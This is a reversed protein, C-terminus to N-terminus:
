KGNIKEIKTELKRLEYPDLPKARKELKKRIKEKMASNKCLELVGTEYKELERM